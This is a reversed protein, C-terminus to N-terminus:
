QSKSTHDLHSLRERLQGIEEAQQRIITDKERIMQFLPAFADCKIELNEQNNPSLENDKGGIPSANGNQSLSPTNSLTGNTKLMEGRGTLLWDPSLDPYALLIKEINNSSMGKGALKAKGLLGVSLGAAVTMQNDNIGEKTMFFQLREIFNSM